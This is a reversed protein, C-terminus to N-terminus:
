DGVKKYTLPMSQYVLCPTDLGIGILIERATRLAARGRTTTDMSAHSLVSQVTRAPVFIATDFDGFVIDHASFGTSVDDLVDSLEESDDDEGWLACWVDEILTFLPVYEISRMYKSTM